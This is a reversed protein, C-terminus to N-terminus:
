KRKRKFIKGYNNKIREVMGDYGRKGEQLKVFTKIIMRQRTNVNWEPHELVEKFLVYMEDNIERVMLQDKTSKAIKMQTNLVTLRDDIEQERKTPTKNM